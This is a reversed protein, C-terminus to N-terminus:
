PMAEPFHAVREAGIHEGIAAEVPAKSALARQMSRKSAVGAVLDRVM